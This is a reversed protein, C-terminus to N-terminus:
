RARRASSPSRDHGSAAGGGSALGRVWAEYRSLSAPGTLHSAAYSRGAAGMADAAAPDASVSEIAALIAAPDGAETVAGAGSSAMLAAAGSRPHTAAVVPRGATFYSTLKSPVSMEVVGPKEHLLLVDAAVLAEEFRGDPLPEMFTLRPLGAGYEQLAPRRSGDGLLVVRVRSDQEGALRAVDVLGELGQKVGMNGAHLAIVEDAGWGLEARVAARDVEVPVSVHSWNPIVQVRGAPVGQNVLRARFVEHIVVVSDARGLLTRELWATAATLRGGGMGTEALAAGYLDQVVVGLRYGRLRRLLVAPVLSLLVPSVAVVVDARRRALQVAAGAAFVAEMVIRAGATPRAPVPHRVRRLRVGRDTEVPRRREYGPHLRWEPYHPHGTVVTVGLGASALHRAMGTTYPANGSHEPAYHLGVVLVRPRRAPGESRAPTEQVEGPVVDEPHARRRFLAGPLRRGIGEDRRGASM